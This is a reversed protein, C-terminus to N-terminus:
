SNFGGYSKGFNDTFTFQIKEDLENNNLIEELKEKTFPVTYVDSVKNTLQLKVTEGESNKIERFQIDKDLGHPVYAGSGIVENGNADSGREISYWVLYDIGKHVLRVVTTITSTISSPVASAHLSTLAQEEMDLEYSFGAKELKACLRPYIVKRILKKPNSVNVSLLNVTPLTFTGGDLIQSVSQGSTPGSRPGVNTDISM